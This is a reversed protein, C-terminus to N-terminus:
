RHLAAFKGLTYEVNAINQPSFARQVVGNHQLALARSADSSPAPSAPPTTPANPDTAATSAATSPDQMVQDPHAYISNTNWDPHLPTHWFEPLRAHGTSDLRPASRPDQATLAQWYGRYDYTPDHQLNNQTAWQQYAQEADPPLPTTYHSYDM